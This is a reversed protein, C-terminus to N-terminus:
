LKFSWIKTTWTSFNVEGYVEIEEFQYSWNTYAMIRYMDEDTLQGIFVLNKTISPVHLVDSLTNRVGNNQILPVNGIDNILHLTDDSTAVYEKSKLPEKSEFWDGISTMHNTCGLDIYWNMDNGPKSMSNWVHEMAFMNDRGYDRYSSEGSFNGHSAYRGRGRGRQSNEETMCLAVLDDFDPMTGRVSISTDLSKYQPGLGNLMVSVMDDDDVTCNHFINTIIRNGRWVSHLNQKLHIKEAETSTGYIKHIIDWAEKPTSAKMIHPILSELICISIWHLVKRSKEIWTKYEKQEEANPNEPLEPCEDEGNVLGWLGKGMLFNEMRYSWIHYNDKNMKDGVIQAINDGM